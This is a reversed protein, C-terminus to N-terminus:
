LYATFRESERHCHDIYTQLDKNTARLKKTYSNFSDLMSKIQSIIKEQVTFACEFISIYFQKVCKYIRVYGDQAKKRKESTSPTNEKRSLIM